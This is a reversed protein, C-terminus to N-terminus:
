PTTWTVPKGAARALSAALKPDKKILVGQESMNFHEKKWPNKSQNAPNGGGGGGQGAGGGESAKFLHPAKTLLGDVYGDISLPDGNKDFAEVEQGNKTEVAVVKGDRLRFATQARFAIDDVATQLLGKKLAANTVADTIKVQALDAELRAKATEAETARKTLEEKMKGTRQEIIEDITKGGKLKGKELDDRMALVERAEEPDIGEFKKKLEDREKMVARNTDRFEDLKERPVAGDVDLIFKGDKEVYLAQHEAPIEDKTAHIFKLAM